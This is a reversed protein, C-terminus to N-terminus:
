CGKTREEILTRFSEPSMGYADALRWMKETRRDGFLIHEPVGYVEAIRKRIKDYEARPIEELNLGGTYKFRGTQTGSLNIHKSRTGFFRSIAGLPLMALLSRRTMTM